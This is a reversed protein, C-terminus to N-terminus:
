RGMSWGHVHNQMYSWVHVHKQVDGRELEGSEWPCLVDAEDCMQGTIFISHYDVIWLSPVSVVVWWGVCM